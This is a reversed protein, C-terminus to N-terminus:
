GEGCAVGTDIARIYNEADKRSKFPGYIMDYQPHTKKNPEKDSEFTEPSCKEKLGVFILM